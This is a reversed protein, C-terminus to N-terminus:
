FLKVTENTQTDLIGFTVVEDSGVFYIKETETYYDLMINKADELDNTGALKLIDNAENETQGYIIYRFM